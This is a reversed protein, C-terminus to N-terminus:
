LFCGQKAIKGEEVQQRAARKKKSRVKLSGRESSGGDPCQKKHVSGLFYM